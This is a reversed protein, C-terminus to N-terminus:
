YGGRRNPYRRNCPNCPQSMSWGNRSDPNSKVRDYEKQSVGGIIVLSKQKTTDVLSDCVLSADDLFDQLIDGWTTVKGGQSGDSYELRIKRKGIVEERVNIAGSVGGSAAEQQSKRDLYRLADLLANYTVICENEDLDGYKAINQDIILNLIEDSLTTTPLGGLLFRININIAATDLAM